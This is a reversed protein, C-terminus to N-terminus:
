AKNPMRTGAGIPGSQDEPIRWFVVGMLRGAPRGSKLSLKQGGPQLPSLSWPRPHYATRPPCYATQGEVKGMGELAVLLAMTGKNRMSEPEYRGAHSEFHGANARTM